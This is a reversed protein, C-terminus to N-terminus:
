VQCIDWCAPVLERIEGCQAADGPLPRLAFRGTNQGWCLEPILWDGFIGEGSNCGEYIVRHAGLYQKVLSITGDSRFRGRFTFRGVCDVGEGRVMGDAAVDLVLDHMKQRGFGRQEWWGSWKAM